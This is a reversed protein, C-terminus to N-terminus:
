SEIWQSFPPRDSSIARFVHNERRVLLIETGEAFQTDPTDPEVMVYHTQGHFDRVRAKAPSGPAATGVLIEAHLGILQDIGIATTEDQPMIRGVLRATIGTTPLAAVAAAPIAIWAPLLAGLNSLALQQAILGIVGFCALFVVLLMLLPLQGFGLWGLWEGDADVDIDHGLAGSGLGVAEVLGILVMTGLAIVFALNEGAALFALM